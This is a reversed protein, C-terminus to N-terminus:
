RSDRRVIVMRGSTDKALYRRQIEELLEREFDAVEWMPDERCLPFLNHGGAAAIELARKATEQGRVQRLDPGLRREAVAGIEPVALV